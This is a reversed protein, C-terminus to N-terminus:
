VVVTSPESSLTTSARDVIQPLFWGRTIPRIVVPSDSICPASTGPVIAAKRLARGSQASTAITGTLALSM